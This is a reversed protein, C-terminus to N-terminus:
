DGRSYGDKEWCSGKLVFGTPAMIRHCPEGCYDEIREGLHDRVWVWALCDEIPDEAIKQEREFTHGAECEYVYIPM